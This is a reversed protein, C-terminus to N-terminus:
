SNDGGPVKPTISYTVVLRGKAYSLWFNDEDVSYFQTDRDPLYRQHGAVQLATLIEDAIESLDPADPYPITATMSMFPPNEAEYYSIADIKWTKRSKIVDYLDLLRANMTNRPM